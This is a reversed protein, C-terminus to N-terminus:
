VSDRQPNYNLQIYKFLEDLEQPNESYIKGTMGEFGIVTRAFRTEKIEENTSYEIYDCDESWPSNLALAFFYLKKNLTDYDEAISEKEKQKVRKHFILESTSYDSYIYYSVENWPSTYFGLIQKENKM